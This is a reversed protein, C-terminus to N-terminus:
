RTNQLIQVGTSVKLRWMSDDPHIREQIATARQMAEKTILHNPKYM